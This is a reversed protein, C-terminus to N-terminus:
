GDIKRRKFDAVILVSVCLYFVSGVKDTEILDSLFNVTGVMVLIVGATAAITKWFPDATSQYISQVYWFLAGLLVLFIILGPLGQEVALLLFYNHITSREDNRSVWTKFAPLTYSKYQQYFSSPGLGTKWHDGIMRIGAVWRHIREATSVDKMQYTAILHERFNTHFITSQYDTSYKMYRDNSKLWFVAVTCAIIFVIFAPLLWKRRILAYTLLGAFLALWAGRAYSFYLAGLTIILLFLVVRKWAMSKSLRIVALQLPVMFVLLASYNVHNRFFPQLSDNIREFSWENGAHRYLALCMFLMMSGLLVLTSQVLIKKERFFFVPAALFALLYWTKALLYKISLLKDTSTAVTVLIWFLQLLILLILPHFLAWEPWKRRHYIALLIISFSTLLMLPEDPLDTGLSPTFNYEISWPITALLLYFLYVPHQVLFPFVIFAFPILILYWEQFFASAVAAVFFLVTLFFASINKRFIM